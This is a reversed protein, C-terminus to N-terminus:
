KMFKQSLKDIVSLTYDIENFTNESSFSFRLTNSAYERSKGSALIVHSPKLTGSTCASGTSAAIGNIDLFILMAESDTKYFEPNFTLSLIYPSFNDLSNIFIKNESFSKVKKIFYNKLEKVKFYNDEMLDNALKVAEAFGVIAAVNETGARRNREQGGGLIFPRMPTGNKIYALGIGKPGNIKHASATLADVGMKKVDIRYKGFSQVADSHFYVNDDINKRINEIDTISGTENNIHMLSILFTKSTLFYKIDASNFIFQNNPRLYSIEFGRKELMEISHLVAHHEALSTIIHTRKSEGFETEAIGNLVFNNAETGGSTFYIESPEANIFEAIIERSEEIAVRAKRGFSHVSSPNGFDETLYPLMKELVKSHLKTSAANDLYVKM